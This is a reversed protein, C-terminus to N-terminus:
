VGQIKIVAVGAATLSYYDVKANRIRNKGTPVAAPATMAGSSVSASTNLNYTGTGGTGTGLSIVTGIIGTSATIISGVGIAATGAAVASVTLVTTTQSATFSATRPQTSIAGTTQDFLVEDGINAAAALSVFFAGYRGLNAYTGDPLSYNTTLPGSSTGANSYAKPEFLIGAFEGTGGVQAQGATSSETFAFGFTQAQSSSTILRPQAQVTIDYAICGPIGVPLGFNVQTQLGM